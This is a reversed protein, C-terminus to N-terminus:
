TLFSPLCIPLEYLFIWFFILCRLRHSTGFTSRVTTLFGTGLGSTTVVLAPVPLQSGKPRSRGLWGIGIRAATSCNEM